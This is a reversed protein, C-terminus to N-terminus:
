RISRIGQKARVAVDSEPAALEIATEYSVIAQSTHGVLRYAEALEYHIQAMKPAHKVARELYRLAMRGENLMLYSKGAGRLANVFNDQIHLAKQYYGLAIKYQGKHYYALGLNSLPYHPTGYLADNTIEKFVAIATDWEELALYATGLNNRAPAYSPKLSISKKFHIIADSIRKKNMYCLGINNHVIPDETYLKEAELLERLASTYDGQRMYAEGVDRKVEAMRRNQMATDVGSCSTALLILITPLATISFVKPKM